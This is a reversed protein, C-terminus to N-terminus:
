PYLEVAVQERLERLESLVEEPTQNLKGSASLLQRYSESVKELLERTTQRSEFGEAVLNSIVEGTPRHETAAAEGVMRYLDAPLEVVVQVTEAARM